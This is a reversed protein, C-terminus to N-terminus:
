SRRRVSGFEPLVDGAAIVIYDLLWPVGMALLPMYYAQVNYYLSVGLAALYVLWWRPDHRTMQRSGYQTLTLVVQLLCAMMFAEYRTVIDAVIRGPEALPAQQGAVGYFTGVVSLLVLLTIGSYLLARFATEIAAPSLFGIEPGSRRSQPAPKTETRKGTLLRELEADDTAVAARAMRRAAPDNAPM